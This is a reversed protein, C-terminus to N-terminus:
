IDLLNWDDMYIDSEKGNYWRSPAVVIKQPNDSLYQAWWSFSSNSMIFHKCCSMLALEEFDNNIKDIYKIMGSWKINKKVWEIDDSFMYMVPNQIKKDLLRIARLYYDKNCVFFLPLKTYDGRRIHVCVSNDELIMQRYEKGQASFFSDKLLLEHKIKESIPAFYKECQWYGFLLKNNAKTETFNIFRDLCIYFGFKNLAKKLCVEVRYRATDGAIKRIVKLTFLIFEFIIGSFGALSLFQRKTRIENEYRINFKKLVDLQRSTSKKSFPITYDLCLPENYTEQFFRGVAYEFMQNGLGGQMRVIIM